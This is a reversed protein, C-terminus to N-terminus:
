RKHQATATAVDINYENPNRLCSATRRRKMIRRRPHTRRPRSIYVISRAWSALYNISGLICGPGQKAEIIVRCRMCRNWILFLHQDGKKQTHTLRNRSIHSGRATTQSQSSASVLKLRSTLILLELFFLFLFIFSSEFSTSKRLAPIM